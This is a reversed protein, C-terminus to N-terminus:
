RRGYSTFPRSRSGDSEFRAGILRGEDVFLTDVPDAPRGGSPPRRQRQRCVTRPQLRSAWTDLAPLATPWIERGNNMDIAVLHFGRALVVRSPVCAGSTSRIRGAALFPM